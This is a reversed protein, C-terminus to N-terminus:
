SKSKRHFIRKAYGLCLIKVKTYNKNHRVIKPKGFWCRYPNGFRSDITLSKKTQKELQRLLKDVNHNDDVVVFNLITDYNYERYLEVVDHSIQFSDLRYGDLVLNKKIGFGKLYSGVDPM